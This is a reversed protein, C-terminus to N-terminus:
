QPENRLARVLEDLASALRPLVLRVAWRKWGSANEWHYRLWIVPQSTV